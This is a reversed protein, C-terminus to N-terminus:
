RSNHAAILAVVDAWPFAERIMNCHAARAADMAADMAAAWAADAAAGRAAADAADWAAYAAAWAAARAADRAARAADRAADRAAADAADWAADAAAAWAADRAAWAADRAADLEEPTAEDRAFAEAIIVANRSREDTLLDWVKRGDALPTERVFRCALTRTRMRKADARLASLLWFMWESRTCAAWATALCGEHLRVFAIGESCADLSRLLDLDTTTAM